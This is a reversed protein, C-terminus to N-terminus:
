ENKAGGVVLVSTRIIYLYVNKILLVSVTM